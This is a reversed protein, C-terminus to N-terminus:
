APVKYSQIVDTTDGLLKENFIVFNQAFPSDYIVQSGDASITHSQCLNTFDMIFKHIDDIKTLGMQDDTTDWCIIDGENIIYLNTLDYDTLDSIWNSMDTVNISSYLQKLLNYIKTPSFEKTPRVLDDHIAIVQITNIYRYIDDSLNSKAPIKQGFMKHTLVQDCTEKDFPLSIKLQNLYRVCDDITLGSFNSIYTISNDINIKQSCIPM